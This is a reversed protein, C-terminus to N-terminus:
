TANQTELLETLHDRLATVQDRTIHHLEGDGWDISLENDTDLESGVMLEDGGTDLLRLYNMAKTGRAGDQAFRGLM